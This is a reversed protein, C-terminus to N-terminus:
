KLVGEIKTEQALANQLFLVLLRTINLSPGVLYVQKELFVEMWELILYTSTIGM